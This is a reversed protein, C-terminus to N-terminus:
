HHTEDLKFSICRAEKNHTQRKYKWNRQENEFHPRPEYGHLLRQRGLLYMEPTLGFDNLELASFRCTFFILSVCFKLKM